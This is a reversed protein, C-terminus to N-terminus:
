RHRRWVQEGWGQVLRTCHLLRALDRTFWPQLHARSATGVQLFSPCATRLTRAPHEAQEPHVNAMRDNILFGVRVHPIASRM